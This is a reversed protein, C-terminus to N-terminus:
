DPEADEAMRHDKVILCIGAMVLALAAALLIALPYEPIYDYSYTYYSHFVEMDRYQMWQALFPLCLLGLIGIVIMLVGLRGTRKKTVPGAPESNVDTNDQGKLITDLSVDFTESILVLTSISPVSIGMEWRSVSQRTVGIREAFQEQSLGRDRRIKLIANALNQNGDKVMNMAM